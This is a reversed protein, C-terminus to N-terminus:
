SKFDNDPHSLNPTCNICNLGTEGLSILKTWIAFDFVIDLKHRFIFCLTIMGMSFIYDQKEQIKSLQHALYNKIKHHFYQKILLISLLDVFTKYCMYKQLFQIVDFSPVSITPGNM